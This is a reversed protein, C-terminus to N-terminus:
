PRAETPPQLAAEAGVVHHRPPEGLQACLENIERKLEIMRLERDVAVRNFRNLNINRAHLEEAQQRLAQEARKRETIDLITGHMDLVQDQSSVALEGLGHVWRVAQDNQRIIRYEKDFRRRKGVVENAFYDVMMQRDDPHILGAWSEVSRAFAADIGFLNDLVESSRWTGSPLDLVYSGLGALLQSERLMKESERLAIEARRRETIDRFSSVRGAVFKGDLMPTSFHEFCRGDKFHILDSFMVDSEYRDKVQKLFADPESLQPLVHDLLAQHDGAAIVTAPIKWLEAFRSNTKLVKGRPDVALIGDDTSELIVRLQAESARLAKESHLRDTIDLAMGRVIPKAVGETRLSTDYEWFRIGGSATKIRMIGQAKGLTRITRLYEPFLHRTGPDVLDVLNMKLLAERPYESIRVTTENVSLFNGELDYTSILEQSNDVLDRYRDENERLAADLRKRETIDRVVFVMKIPQGDRGRIFGSNVEIDFISRDKRVGRYENPVHFGGQHMLLLNSRAREADEPVIFDLLQKGGEEGPEYGFMATAAPSILLIRGELDTITIDDPSANLISRYTEESERLSEEARKRDSIDRVVAQLVRKGDLELAKLLVEAPFTAGNDSRKHLWEFHQDGTDLAATILQNALTGSDTGCPQFEPSLDVPHKSYFEDKDACGFMLLAAPNCDFYGHGDLLMVGDPDSDYLTRFKAESRHLADAARKLEEDRCKRETIDRAVAIIVRKGFYFGPSVSVDKPFSTGDKKRGWFEFTQPEGNLAKELAPGLKSLDNKGPASLFEPTRGVFDAKAYGYMKETAANVDLFVGHEDQIYVAETVSDLVGRYTQESLRIREETLKSETIDHTVALVLKDCDHDMLEASLAVIRREGSKTHFAAELDSVRGQQRLTELYSDRESEQDWLNLELVSRGVVEERSWGSLRVFSDNIELVQGDSLRSIVIGDPIARFAKAARDESSRLAFEMRKRATIDRLFAFLRGPEGPLYNVSLEVDILHGDKCRHRREFKACGDQRIRMITTAIETTSEDAELDAITKGLLETRTYGLMQCCAENVELLHGQMDLLWFGDLSTQLITERENRSQQLQTEAQHKYLAVEIVTRLEREDFPKIIYGSPETKKARDLMEEGAFATLFVVPIGFRDHIIQAADIGDMEGELHIDMLVLDPHMREAMPIAEEASPTEAVPEYGLEVLQQRIDRAVFPEDEVILIRPKTM